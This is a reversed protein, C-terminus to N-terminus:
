RLFPYKQVFSLGEWWRGLGLYRGGGVVAIGFLVIAYIVHDDLFPNNEPSLASATYFLVM